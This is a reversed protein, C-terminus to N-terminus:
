SIYKTAPMQKFRSSSCFVGPLRIIGVATYVYTCYISYQLYAAGQSEAGSVVWEGFEGGGDGGQVVGRVDASVGARSLGGILLLLLPSAAFLAPMRAFAGAARGRRRQHKRTSHGNSHKAAKSKNRRCVLPTGDRNKELAEMLFLVGVRLTCRDTQRDYLPVLHGFRQRRSWGKTHPNTEDLLLPSRSRRDSQSQSRFGFSVTLTSVYTVFRRPPKVQNLRHQHLRIWRIRRIDSTPDM